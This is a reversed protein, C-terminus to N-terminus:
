ENEKVSYNKLGDIDDLLFFANINVYSIPYSNVRYQLGSFYINVGVEELKKLYNLIDFYSGSLYLTFKYKYLSLSNDEDSVKLEELANFTFENIKIGNSLSYIRTLTSDILKTDLIFDSYDDIIKDKVQEINKLREIEKIDKMHINNKISNVIIDKQMNLSEINKEAIKMRISYANNKVVLGQMMFFDCIFYISLMSCFIIVGRERLAFSNFKVRIHAFSKVMIM